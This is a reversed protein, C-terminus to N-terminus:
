WCCSCRRSRVECQYFLTDPASSAVTWTILLTGTGTVGDTYRASASTNGPVSHIALLHGPTAMNLQM